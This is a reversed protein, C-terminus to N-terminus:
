GPRQVVLRTWGPVQASLNVERWKPHRPAKQFEAFRDTLASVFRMLKGYRETGPAWGYAAMVAGVALTEVAADGMVLSPYSAATLSSPLYTEILESSLPLALFHLGSGAPVGTFLSAPKGAVYVLASIEGDKLRQLANAQTDHVPEVRVKLAGFILSATMATGSGLVDFNVRKGALQEVSGVEPRALVHVEEDYLKAIYKVMTAIGPVINERLAYALVDSQVIGVDIGRLYAIDSLNQM